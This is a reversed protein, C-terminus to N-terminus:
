QGDSCHSENEAMVTETEKLRILFRVPLILLAVLALKLWWTPLAYLSWVTTLLITALAIRKAKRPISRTHQWHHILPGFLKNRLLWQYLAPSSKAFCAAAVLLFPTTPLLPLAVGLLALFVFLWGAVIYVFRTM